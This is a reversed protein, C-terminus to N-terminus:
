ISRLGIFFTTKVRPVATSWIGDLREAYDDESFGSLKITCVATKITSETMIATIAIFQKILTNFQEFAAADLASLDMFKFVDDAIHNLIHFKM